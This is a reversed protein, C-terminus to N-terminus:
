LRQRCHYTDTGGHAAGLGFSALPEPLASQMGATFKRRVADIFSTTSGVKHLTAFSITAQSAGRTPYLKGSVQVQDGRYVMTEGFGAVKITGPVKQKHPYTIQVDRVIFTLQANKGYVADINATGTFTVKQLALNHYPQLEHLYVSGRWMGLLLGMVVMLFAALMTRSTYRWIALVAVPVMYWWLMLELRRAVVLGLLFAACGFM